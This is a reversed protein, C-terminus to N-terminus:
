ATGLKTDRQEIWQAVPAKQEVMRNSGNAARDV